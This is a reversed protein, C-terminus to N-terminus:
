THFKAQRRKAAKHRKRYDDTLEARNGEWSATIDDLGGNRQFAPVTDTKADGSKNAFLNSFLSVPEKIGASTSSGATGAPQSPVAATTSQSAPGTYPDRLELRSYNGDFIQQICWM